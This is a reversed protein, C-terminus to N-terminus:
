SRKMAGRRSATQALSAHVMALERLVQQPLRAGVARVGGVCDDGLARLEVRRDALALDLRQGVGAALRQAQADEDSAARRRAVRRVERLRCEIPEHAVDHLHGARRARVRRGPEGSLHHGGLRDVEAEEIGRHSRGAGVLLDLHGGRPPPPV